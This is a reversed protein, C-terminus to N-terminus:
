DQDDTHLCTIQVVSGKKVKLGAEISQHTVVANKGIYFNKAGHVQINFGLSILTANATQADLGIVNPMVAYEPAAVDTYLLICSGESRLVTNESPVQSLITSGNGIVRYSLGSAALAKKADSLTMGTYNSVTITKDENAYDPEFGLYPLINTLLGSIYPAAVMSGYKGNQPEDVVIIVAIEPKDAPAFAVCSGVRLYSNGNEDLIDFKQSTGTKAAVKYGAVYANKAGGDGSVGQELCDAVLSSTNQSIVQRKIETEHQSIVNGNTDVVKEVLYPTVLNGGNAACAIATLQGIITVKFRQGFSATALETTGLSALSHFISKAESPLDIGTKELYGFKAFYEYFTQAGISAAVNMMTPNCSNQLGYSFTFGSGHGGRKHCSINYGGIRLSGSCSYRKEMTTAGTEIGVCATFIKFTSGPEYLESVAKNSWMSYLLESKLAKYEESGLIYNSASLKGEYLEDLKYPDNCNFGNTTAMALIAGTNVNMVIGTVRNEAAFTNKTENIQYELQEQIYTDLTTVISNGDLADVYSVYQNPMENGNADKAYIYYGDTGALAQNYQYELGFLGQSDSGTFGLVHCFLDGGPYYRDYYAETHIMDGLGYEQVVELVSRYTKEDAEKILTEDIVRSNSAKKYIEEFDMSLVPSLVTAIKTAYDENDKKSTDRIDVPSLFIRWKTISEALVNGNTDYISGRNARLSSTTTVQNLVKDQYKDYSFLGMYLIASLLYSLLLIFATALLVARRRFTGKAYVRTKYKAMSVVLILYLPLGYPV